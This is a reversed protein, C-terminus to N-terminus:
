VQIKDFLYSGIGLLLVVLIGLVFFDTTIGFSSHGILSGRLGDIGYSLPDMRAAIEM